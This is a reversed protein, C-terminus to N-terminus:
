ILNLSNIIKPIVITDTYNNIVYQHARKSINYLDVPNDLIEIIKDAIENYDEINCLIGRKDTLLHPLNGSSIGALAPTGVVMSELVSMGFSEELSPHILLKAKAVTKIVDLFYCRGM